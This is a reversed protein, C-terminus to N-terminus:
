LIRHERCEEKSWSKSCGYYFCEAVKKSVDWEIRNGCNTSWLRGIIKNYGNHHGKTDLKKWVSGYLQVSTHKPLWFDTQQSVKHFLVFNLPLDKFLVIPFHNIKLIKGNTM